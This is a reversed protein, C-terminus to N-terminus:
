IHNKEESFMGNQSLVCVYKFIRIKVKKERQAEIKDM